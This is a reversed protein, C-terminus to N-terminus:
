KTKIEEIKASYKFFSGIELTQAFPLLLFFAFLLVYIFVGDDLIEKPPYGALIHLTILFYAAAIWSVWIFATKM